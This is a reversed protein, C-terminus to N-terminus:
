VSEDMDTYDHRRYHCFIRYRYRDSGTRQPVSSHVRSPPPCSCPPFFAFSLCIFLAPCNTPHNNQQHGTSPTAKFSVMRRHGIRRVTYLAIRVTYLSSLVVVGFFPFINLFSSSLQYRDLEPSIAVWFCFRLFFYSSLHLSCLSPRLTKWVFIFVILLTELFFIFRYAYLFHVFTNKLFIPFRAFFFKGSGHVFLFFVASPFWFCFTALRVCVWFFFIENRSIWGLFFFGLM